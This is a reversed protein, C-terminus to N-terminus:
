LMKGRNECLAVRSMAGQRRVEKSQVHDICFIPKCRECVRCCYICTSKGRIGCTEEIQDRRVISGCTECEWLKEDLVAMLRKSRTRSQIWSQERPCQSCKEQSFKTQIWGGMGRNHTQATRDEIAQDQRDRLFLRNELM